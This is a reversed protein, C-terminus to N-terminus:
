EKQMKNLMAEFPNVNQVLGTIMCMYIIDGLEDALRERSFPEKDEPHNRKYKRHPMALVLEMAEAVETTVFLLADEVSPWERGKEIFHTKIEHALQQPTM